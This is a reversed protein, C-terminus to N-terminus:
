LVNSGVEATTAGPSITTAESVMTDIVEMVNLFDDELPNSFKNMDFHTRILSFKQTRGSIDLCASPKDVVFM